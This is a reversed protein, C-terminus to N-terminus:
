FREGNGVHRCLCSRIVHFECRAFISHLICSWSFCNCTNCPAQSTRYGFKDVPGGAFLMCGGALLSAAAYMASIESRSLDMGSMYSEIFVAITYTQGPGSFFMGIGGIAVIVWGYYYGSRLPLSSEALRELVNVM